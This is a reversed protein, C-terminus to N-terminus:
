SALDPELEIGEYLEAMSLQLEVSSLHLQGDRRRVLATIWRDGERRLIEAYLTESDILLIEQVSEIERYAPVKTQRDHRETSPSLVEIILIPDQILQEGRQYPRCTM